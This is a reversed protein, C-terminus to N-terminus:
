EQGAFLNSQYRGNGKAFRGNKNQSRVALGDQM